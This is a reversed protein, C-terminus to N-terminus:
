RACDVHYREFADMLRAIRNRELSRSVDRKGSGSLGHLLNSDVGGSLYSEVLNRAGLGSRPVGDQADLGAPDAAAVEAVDLDSAHRAGRGLGHGETVLEGGDDIADAALHLAERRTRADDHVRDGGRVEDATAPRFAGVGGLHQNLFDVLASAQERDGVIQGEVARGECLRQPHPHM